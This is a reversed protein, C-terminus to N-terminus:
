ENRTREGFELRWFFLGIAIFLYQFFNWVEDDLGFCVFRNTNVMMFENAGYQDCDTLALTSLVALLGCVIAAVIPPKSSSKM